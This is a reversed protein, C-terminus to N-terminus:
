EVDRIKGIIHPAITRNRETEEALERIEPVLAKARAILEEPGSPAVLRVAARTMPREPLDLVRLIGRGPFRSLRFCPMQRQRRPSSPQCDSFSGTALTLGTILKSGTARSVLPDPLARRLDIM